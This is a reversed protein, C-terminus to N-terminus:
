THFSGRSSPWTATKNKGQESKNRNEWEEQDAGENNCEPARTTGHRAGAATSDRRSCSTPETQDHQATERSVARTRQGKSRGARLTATKKGDQDCRSGSGTARQM